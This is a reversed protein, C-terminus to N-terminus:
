FAREDANVRGGAHRAVHLCGREGPSKRYRGCCGDYRGAIIRKCSEKRELGRFGIRPSPRGPIAFRLQLAHAIVEIRQAIVVQQHQYLEHHHEGRGLVHKHHRGLRVRSPPPHQALAVDVEVGGLALHYSGARSTYAM